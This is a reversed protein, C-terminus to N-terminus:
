QLLTSKGIGPDGGLLLVSGPVLGGGLVRDFEAIGITIRDQENASLSALDLAQNTTQGSFGAHRRPGDPIVRTEVISNWAQCEPCQGAWKSLLAGCEDCQFTNRAKAM